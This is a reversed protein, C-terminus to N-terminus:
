ADFRKNREDGFDLWEFQVPTMFVVNQEARQLACCSIFIPVMEDATPCLFLSIVRARKCLRQLQLISAAKNTNYKDPRTCQTSAMFIFCVMALVAWKAASM